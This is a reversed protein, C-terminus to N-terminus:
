WGRGGPDPTENAQSEGEGLCARLGYLHVDFPAFDDTFECHNVPVTRGEGLVSIQRVDRPVSMTVRAPNKDSNVALLYLAGDHEKALTEVGADVSHGMEHYRVLPSHAARRASLIPALSAIERTVRMLDRWFVTSQATSHLGWYLLGNAGHVIADYAMYRAQAYTPYLIDEARRDAPDRLMEWAFGQLVMLVPRGAGAVRRMKDTYEGVQSVYINLLDGQLGDPFLAYEERIGRPIVPYIDCATVDTSPAYAQLTTELNTPAHNLYVLRAPDTGKIIRYTAILPEPPVRCTANQWTWAPEDVTEWFLLAPHEKFRSLREVLARRSDESGPQLAGVGLWAALGAEHASDLAAEELPVRVLWFGAAALAAYPSKEEESTGPPGSYAGLLFRREGDVMIMGDDDYTVSGISAVNGGRRVADPAAGRAIQQGVHYVEPRRAALVADSCAGLGVDQQCLHAIPYRGPTAGGAVRVPDMPGNDNHGLGHAGQLYLLTDMSAM